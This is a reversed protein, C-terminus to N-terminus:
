FFVWYSALFAQEQGRTGVGGSAVGGAALSEAEAVALRQSEAYQEAARRIEESQLGVLSGVNAGSVKGTADASGVEGSLQAKLAELRAQKKKEAEARATDKEDAASGSGVAKGGDPKRFTEFKNVLNSRKGQKQAREAAKAASEEDEGFAAAAVM